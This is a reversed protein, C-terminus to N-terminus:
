ENANDKRCYKKYKKENQEDTRKAVACCTYVLVICGLAVGLIVDNM